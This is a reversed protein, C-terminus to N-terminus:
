HSNTHVHQDTKERSHHKILESQIWNAQSMTLKKYANYSCNYSKGDLLSLLNVQKSNNQVRCSRHKFTSGLTIKAKKCQSQPPMPGVEANRKRGTTAGATSSTSAEAPCSPAMSVKATGEHSSSGSSLVEEESDGHNSNSEIIPEDSDLSITRSAVDRSGAQAEEVAAAAPTGGTGAANCSATTDIRRKVHWHKKKAALQSQGASTDSGQIPYVLSSPGETRGSSVRNASQSLTGETCVSQTPRLYGSL